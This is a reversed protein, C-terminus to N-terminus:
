RRELFTILWWVAGALMALGLAYDGIVFLLRRRAAQRAVVQKVQKATLKPKGTKRKRATQKIAKVPSAAQRQTRSSPLKPDAKATKRNKPLSLRPACADSSLHYRAICVDAMLTTGRLSHRSRRLASCGLGICFRRDDSEQQRDRCWAAAPIFAIGRGGSARVRRCRAWASPQGAHHAHQPSLCHKTQNKRPRKATGRGRSM